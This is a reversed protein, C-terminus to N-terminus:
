SVKESAPTPWAITTSPATAEAYKPISLALVCSGSFALIFWHTRKELAYFVLMLTVALLGFWTLANM